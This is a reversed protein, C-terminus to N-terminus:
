SKRRAAFRASEELLDTGQKICSLAVVANDELQSLIVRAESIGMAAVLTAKRGAEDKAVAKGVTKADGEADLLDDAVQFLAGLHSGFEAIARREDDGAAGLITGAACSYRIIAGTKMAQLRRIHEPTPNQPKGLKGAELDIAQGGVMGGAGSARALEASLECRVAPDEIHPSAAVIEFALTLLADGALIATWDDFAKWVTPQGRRLEDNDMAPLDDHILSYCHLCEVAAAVDSAALPNAGFLRATELVLFPRLRKGGALLGHRMADLLRPPVGDEGLRALERELRLETSAAATALSQAFNM